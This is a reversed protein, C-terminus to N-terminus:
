VLHLTNKFDKIYHRSVPVKEKPYHSLTLLLTGNDQNQIEHIMSLNVIYGKHTRFFGLPSLLSEIDRLTMKSEIIGRTTYFLARDSKESSILIIEQAPSILIIEQAPSIMITKGQTQLSIKQSTSVIEGPAREKEILALSDALRSITRAIRAEDYPKLIYDFAELDFAKVAFQSYGTAFVVKVSLDMRVIEKACELGNMLPMEIDLFLIDVNPHTKLFALVERGNGCEGIVKVGPINSLEYTLEGRAPLEDDAVLARIEKM